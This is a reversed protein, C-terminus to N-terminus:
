LAKQQRAALLDWVSVESIWHSSPAKSSAEVEFCPSWVCQPWFQVAQVLSIVNKKCPKFNAKKSTFSTSLFTEIDAPPPLERIGVMYFWLIQWWLMLPHASRQLGKTKEERQINFISWCESSLMKTSQATHLPFIIAGLKHTFTLPKKSHCHWMNFSWSYFRSKSLNM